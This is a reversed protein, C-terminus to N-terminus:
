SIDERTMRIRARARSAARADHENTYCLDSKVMVPMEGIFAEGAADKKEIGSVVPVYTIYMPAAYTLNRAIAENPMIKKTSSDSEIIM